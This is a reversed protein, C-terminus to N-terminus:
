FKIQSKIEKLIKEIEATKKNIPISVVHLNSQNIMEQLEGTLQHLKAAREKLKGFEDQQRQKEMKAKMDLEAKVDMETRDRESMQPMVNPTYLLFLLSAFMIWRARNKGNIQM